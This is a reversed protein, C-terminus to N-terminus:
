KRHMCNVDSSIKNLDAQNTSLQYYKLKDSIPIISAAAKGALQDDRDIMFLKLEVVKLRMYEFARVSRSSGVLYKARNVFCWLTTM